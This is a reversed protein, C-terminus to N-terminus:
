VVRTRKRNEWADKKFKEPDIKMGGESLQAARKELERAEAETWKYAKQEVSPESSSGASPSKPKNAAARKLESITKENRDSDAIALAAKIDSALATDSTGTRVIRSNLIQRVYARKAPDSIKEKLLDDEKSTAVLPVVTSQLLQEFERRTLPKDDNEDDPHTTQNAKVFERKQTFAKKYNEAREEAAEALAKWDTDDKEGGDSTTTDVVTEDEAGLVEEVGADISEDM